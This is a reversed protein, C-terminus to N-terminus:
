RGTFVARRKEAFAKLGEQRDSTEFLPNYLQRELDLGKELPLDPAANIATKAARLALPALRANSKANQTILVALRM